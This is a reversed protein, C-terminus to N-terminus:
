IPFSFTSKSGYGRFYDLEEKVGYLSIFTGNALNFTFIISIKEEEAYCQGAFDLKRCIESFKKLKKM